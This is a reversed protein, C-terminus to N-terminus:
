PQCGITDYVYMDSNLIGRAVEQHRGDRVSDRPHHHHSASHRSYNSHHDVEREQLLPQPAASALHHHVRGGARSYSQTPVIPPATALASVSAELNDTRGQLADLREGRDLMREVNQSM